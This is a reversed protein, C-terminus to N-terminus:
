YADELIEKNTEDLGLFQKVDLLDPRYYVWNNEKCYKCCYKERVKSSSIYKYTFCTSCDVKM